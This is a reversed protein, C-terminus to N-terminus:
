SRQKPLLFYCPIFILIAYALPAFIWAAPIALLYLGPGFILIKLFSFEREASPEALFHLVYQYLLSMTFGAFAMVVAFFSLAVPSNPYEGLLATPFPIFSVAMLALANLWLLGYDSKRARCLIHHHNVWFVTLVLFSILWSLIKPSLAALARWLNASNPNAVHPLRIELILLTLVIAFVGDSLAELRNNSVAPKQFAKLNFM